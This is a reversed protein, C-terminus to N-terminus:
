REGRPKLAQGRPKVSRGPPWAPAVAAPDPVARRPPSLVLPVPGAAPAAGPPAVGHQAPVVAPGARRGPKAPAPSALVPDGPRAGVPM